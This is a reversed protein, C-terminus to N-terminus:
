CRCAPQKSVRLKEAPEFGAKEATKQSARQTLSLRPHTDPRFCGQRSLVRGGKESFRPPEDLGFMPPEGPGVISLSALAALAPLPTEGVARPRTERTGPNGAARFFERATTM